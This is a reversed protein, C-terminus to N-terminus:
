WDAGTDIASMGDASFPRLLVEFRFEATRLWYQEWPKPGCSNSGLGHQAYDLNLIIHDRPTLECTHRAKEFDAATFQHASFNITPQGVCLLGMGRTDALTVWRVDSRNGNEQPFVYPTYLEDVTMKYLGFRGAQKSDPYTEGPGRGFWSVRDLGAPLSMTLGIRPLTDSWKGAPIGHCEILVAGDGFITYVYECDFGNARVPPAIRTKATIQVVGASPQSVEVSDTRHRLVDLGADRWSKANDWARDNDTTARWFNLRPGSEILRQGNSTWSSIVAHIRDFSLEFDTGIVRISNGMDRVSVPPMDKASLTKAAPSEVPLKFQAWAVEHGRAAWTQDAALAFSLTLWYETGPEPTPLAYDLTIDETKGADIHPVPASGSSIMKGDASISWSLSLHGLSVFDYRNTIKFRGKALDVAEVKVPEIVKKYETLGPSPTRDPFLLGDCIFNGDNPQDGFDGGYGYCVKGDQTRLPIGHDLWEWIFGGQLRPYKYIADWYELLGGPGNGMAHAYECMIFPMETYGKPGAEPDGEGIKVLKDIHTYMESFVDAVQVQRDGEYHIPREPDIVRAREAMASHNCGFNAENGLSWMIVSPHNKDRRVMREMRDVCAAEWTPDNTPNGPWGEGNVEFGHTELDCEDILYIGYYDCLDYWRPDDCYHSTRVANINHTKMLLIDQAMTELPVARGLEPHHEHRNVGKFIIPVGNVLLNGGKMEVQRFGVKVPTVEITGGQADKLTLLLTYLYPDEASWKRPSKVPISIDQGADVRADAIRERNNDLLAAEMSCGAFEGRVETKVSLVADTYSEDSKTNVAFDWLHVAPAAILYVDRFIGSLWWMDQDELYSGDSWQYVRVAMSNAGPRVFDTIDFEAPIRSGKSFGVERGNVWVHFASDVGEFRLTIRRGAWDAPIYFDRRYSGTPNETPVRPPDVPFPYVVNTYHPRGYGAMQWSCPVPIDDWGSVDLGEAAFDAPSQAPTEAYHFKWQGNLLRFWPSAGREGTLASTEDPYPFSYSRSDLRNRHTLSQNEWDNM